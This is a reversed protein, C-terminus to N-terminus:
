PDRKGAEDEGPIDNWGLLLDYHPNGRVFIGINKSDLFEKEETGSATKGNRKRIWGAGHFGLLQQIASQGEDIGGGLTSIGIGLIQFNM